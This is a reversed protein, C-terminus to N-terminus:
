EFGAVRSRFKGKGILVPIDDAEAIKAALATDRKGEVEHRPRGTSRALEPRILSIDGLKFCRARLHQADAHAAALPVSLEGLREAQAKRNESVFILGDGAGISNKKWKDSQGVACREHDVLLTYDALDNLTGLGNVRASCEASATKLSLPPVM